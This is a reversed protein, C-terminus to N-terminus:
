RLLARNVQLPPVPNGPSRHRACLDPHAQWSPRRICRPGPLDNHGVFVSHQRTGPRAQVHGRGELAPCAAREGGHQGPGIGRVRHCSRGSQTRRVPRGFWGAPRDGLRCCQRQLVSRATRLVPDRRGQGDELRFHWRARLGRRADRRPRLDRHLHHGACACDARARLWTRLCARPTASSSRTSGPKSSRSCPTSSWREWAALYAQRLPSASRSAARSECHMWVGNLKVTWFRSRKSVGLSSPICGTKSFYISTCDMLDQDPGEIMYVEAGPRPPALKFGSKLYRQTEATLPPVECGAQRQSDSRGRQRPVRSRHAGSSDDRLRARVARRNRSHHTSDEHQGGPM